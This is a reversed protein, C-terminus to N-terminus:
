GAPGAGVIAAAAHGGQRGACLPRLGGAPGRWPNPAPQPVAGPRTHSPRGGSPGFPRYVPPRPALAYSLRYLVHSKIMPDQTRTGAREGCSILPESMHFGGMPTAKQDEAAGPRCLVSFSALEGDIYNASSRRRRGTAIAVIRFTAGYLFARIEVRAKQAM